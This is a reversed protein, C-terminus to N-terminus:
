GIMNLGLTTRHRSVEIDNRRSHILRIRLHSQQNLATFWAISLYFATKSVFVRQSHNGLLCAIPKSLFLFRIVNIVEWEKVEGRRTFEGGNSNSRQERRETFHCSASHTDSSYTPHDVDIRCLTHDLGIVM